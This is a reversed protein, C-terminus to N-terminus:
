NLNGLSAYTSLKNLLNEGMWTNKKDGDGGFVKSKRGVM